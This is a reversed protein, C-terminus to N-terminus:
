GDCPQKLLFSIYLACAPEQFDTCRIRSTRYFPRVVHRSCDSRTNSGNDRDNVYWKWFTSLQQRPTPLSLQFTDPISADRWMAYVRVCFGAFLCVVKCLAEFHFNMNAIASWKVTSQMCIVDRGFTFTFLDGVGPRGASKYISAM